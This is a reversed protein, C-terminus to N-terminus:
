KHKSKKSKAKNGTTNFKIKATPAEITANKSLEDVPSMNARQGRIVEEDIEKDMEVSLDSCFEAVLIDNPVYGADFSFTIPNILDTILANKIDEFNFDYIDQEWIRLDDILVIDNYKKAHSVIVEIEEMLPCKKKCFLMTKDSVHADLWFTIGEKIDALIAPLETVSDGFVIKVNKNDKFREVCMDYYAPTYEISIITEFGVDLARQIGDGKHSGTEIFVKNNTYSLFINKEGAM